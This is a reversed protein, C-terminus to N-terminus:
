MTTLLGPLFLTGEPLTDMGRTARPTLDRSPSSVAGSGASTLVSHLPVTGLPCLQLEPRGPQVEPDPEPKPGCPSPAQM